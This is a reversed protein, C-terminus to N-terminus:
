YKMRNSKVYGSLKNVSESLEKENDMGYKSYRTDSVSTNNLSKESHGSKTAEKFAGMNGERKM